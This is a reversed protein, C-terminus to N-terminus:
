QASVIEANEVVRAFASITAIGELAQQRSTGGPNHSLVNRWYMFVAEGLHMAGIQYSHYTDSGDDPHVRLRPQNPKPPDKSFSQQVLSTGTPKRRGVRSQLKVDVVKIAAEVAEGWHDSAWLDQAAHWVWPHLERPDVDIAPEDDTWHARLEDHQEIAGLARHVEGLQHMEWALTAGTMDWSSDPVLYSIVGRVRDQHRQLWAYEEEAVRGGRGYDQYPQAIYTQLHSQYEDLWERAKTFDRPM